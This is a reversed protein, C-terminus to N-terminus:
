SRLAAIIRDYEDHTIEGGALRRQALTRPDEKRDVGRTAGRVALYLIWILAVWFAIMMGMGLSMWVWGIGWNDHGWMM